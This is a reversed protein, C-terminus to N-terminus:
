TPVVFGGDIAAVGGVVVAVVVAFVVDVVDVFDIVVGNIVVIIATDYNPFLWLVLIM